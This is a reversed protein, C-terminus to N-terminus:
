PAQLFLLRINQKKSWNEVEKRDTEFKKNLIGRHGCLGIVEHHKAAALACQGFFRQVEGNPMRSGRADVLKIEVALTKLTDKAVMDFTHKTGFAAVTGWEKSDKWCKPCGLVRGAIRPGQCAPSCCKKSSWPHIFLSVDPHQQAIRSAVPIAFEREFAGETQLNRPVPERGFAAILAVAFDSIL